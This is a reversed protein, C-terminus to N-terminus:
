VLPKLTALGIFLFVAYDKVCIGGFWHLNLIANVVVSVSEGSRTTLDRGQCSTVHSVVAHDPFLCVSLCVSLCVGM